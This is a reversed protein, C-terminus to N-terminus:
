AAESRSHPLAACVVPLLADVVMAIARANPHLRDALVLDPHGLVGRPFFPATAIGHKAALEVYMARYQTRLAALFPPAEFTALLTPLGCRALEGLIADLNARTREPPFGRLLDNVGLEVIVLDPKRTLRTLVPALRKLGGATTDGSVGANHVVAGAFRERLASQLRAAFSAAAPLGYGATLSDGFALVYPATMM